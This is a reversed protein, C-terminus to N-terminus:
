KGCARAALAYIISSPSKDPYKEFAAYILQRTEAKDYFWGDICASGTDNGDAVYRSVALGSVVGTIFMYQQEDPMKMLDAASLDNAAAPLALGAALLGGGLAKEM